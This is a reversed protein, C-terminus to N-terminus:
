IQQHRKKESASLSLSEAALAVQGSQARGLMRWGEGCRQLTAICQASSLGHRSLDVRLYERETVRDSMHCSAGPIQEFARGSASVVVFALAAIEPPLANLFVFIREDDWTKAGTTSDGTHVVSGNANRTRGPHVLEVLQSQADFLVCFADLDAHEGPSRSRQEEIDWRLGMIVESSDFMTDGRANGSSNYFHTNM